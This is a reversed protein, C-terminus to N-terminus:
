TMAVQRNMSIGERNSGRNILLASSLRRTFRWEFVAAWATQFFLQELQPRWVNAISGLEFLIM